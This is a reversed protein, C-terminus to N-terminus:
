APLSAFTSRIGPKEVARASGFHRLLLKEKTTGIGPIQALAGKFNRKTRLKRHYEIAFRHAEDRLHTLLRYEDTHLSLPFPSKSSKIFVREASRQNEEVVRSKALSVVDITDLGLDAVM